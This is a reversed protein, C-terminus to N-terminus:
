NAIVKDFFLLCSPIRLVYKRIGFSIGLALNAEIGESQCLFQSFNRLLSNILPDRLPNIRSTLSRLYNPTDEATIKSLEGHSEGFTFDLFRDVFACWKYITRESLGHQCCLHMQYTAKLEERATTNSPNNM